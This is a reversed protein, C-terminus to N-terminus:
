DAHRAVRSVIVPRWFNQLVAMVVFAVIAIAEFGALVGVGLLVFTALNIRWLWRSGRRM